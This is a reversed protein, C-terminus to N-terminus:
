NIDENRFVIRKLDERLFVITGRDYSFAYKQSQERFFFWKYLGFWAKVPSAGKNFEGVKTFSLTSGDRMYMDLILKIKKDDPKGIEEALKDSSLYEPKDRESSDKRKFIRTFIPTM